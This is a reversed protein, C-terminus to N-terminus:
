RMDSKVKGYGSRFILTEPAADALWVPASVDLRQRVNLPTDFARHQM